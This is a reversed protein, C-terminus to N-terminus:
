KWKASLTQTVLQLENEPLMCSTQIYECFAGNHYSTQYRGVYNSNGKTGGWGAAFPIQTGNILASEDKRIAGIIIGTELVANTTRKNGSYIYNDLSHLYPSTATTNAISISRHGTARREHVFFSTFNNVTDVSSSLTLYDDVGDFVFASLGNVSTLQPVSLSGPNVAVLANSSKDAWSDLIYLQEGPLTTSFTGVTTIGNAPDGYNTLTSTTFALAQVTGGGSVTNLLPLAPRTFNSSYLCENQTIRLNSLYGRFWAGYAGYAYLGNINITNSVTINNPYSLDVGEQTGDVFLKMVGSERVVAVHHWRNDGVSTIGNIGNTTCVVGKPRGTGSQGDEVFIGFLTGTNTTNLFNIVHLQGLINNVRNAAPIRIYFEVTFDQTSLSWGTTNNVTVRNLTGDFYYGYDSISDFGSKVISTHPRTLQFNKILGDFYVNPSGGVPFYDVGGVYLLNNTSAGPQGVASLSETYILSNDVIVDMNLDEVKLKVNYWTNASLATPIEIIQWAAGNGPPDIFARWELKLKQGSNDIVSLMMLDPYSTIGQEAAISNMNMDFSLTWSRNQYPFYSGALTYFDDIGDFSLSEGVTTANGNAIAQYLPITNANLNLNSVDSADLWLQLNPIDQIGTYPSLLMETSEYTRGNYGAIAKVNIPQVSADFKPDLGGSFYGTTTAYEYGFTDASSVAWGLFTLKPDLVALADSDVGYISIRFLSLPTGPDLPFVTSQFEALDISYSSIEYLVTTSNELTKYFYGLESPLDPGSVSFSCIEYSTTIRDEASLFFYGWEPPIESADASFSCLEYSVTSYDNLSKIRRSGTQISSAIIGTISAM